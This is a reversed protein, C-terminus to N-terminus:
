FLLIVDDNAMIPNQVDIDKGNFSAHVFHIGNLILTYEDSLHDIAVAHVGPGFNGRLEYMDSSYSDRVAHSTFVGPIPLGDVHFGFDVTDAKEDHALALRLVDPGAGLTIIDAAALAPETKLASTMAPADVSSKSLPSAKASLRFNADGNTMLQVSGKQEQDNLTIAEIYLNRDRVANGGSTDNLFRVTLLHEAHSFSGTLEV